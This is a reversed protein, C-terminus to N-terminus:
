SELNVPPEPKKFNKHHFREQLFSHEERFIEYWLVVMSVVIVIFHFFAYSKPFENYAPAGAFVYFINFAILGALLMIIHRISSIPKNLLNSKTLYTELHEFFLLSVFSLLALTLPAAILVPLQPLFYFGESMISDLFSLEKSAWVGDFYYSWQGGKLFFYFYFAFVLGPFAYFVARKQRQGTEKWYSSELDIDPCNKTCANCTYCASRNKNHYYNSSCYIKEVLSVPCLYNCWTKGIFFLGFLFSVIIVIIFFLALYLTDFNLVYLRLTFATLLFSFQFIYFNKVFWPSIRRKKISGINQGIKSFWALPCINRWRSYGIVVIIFPVVPVVVTWVIAASGKIFILM